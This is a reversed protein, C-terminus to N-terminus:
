SFYFYAKPNKKYKEKPIKFYIMKIDLTELHDILFVLNVTTAKLPYGGILIEM